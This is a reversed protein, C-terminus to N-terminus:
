ANTANSLFFLVVTVITYSLFIVMMGFIGNIIFKKARDIQEQNGRSTMWIYGGILIITLFVITVAGFLLNIAFGIITTLGTTADGAIPSIEAAGATTKVGGLANDVHTHNDALAINGFVFSTVLLTILFTFNNKKFHM